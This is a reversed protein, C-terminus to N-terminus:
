FGSFPDAAKAVFHPGDFGIACNGELRQHSVGEPLEAGLLSLIQILNGSIHHKAARRVEPLETNVAFSVGAKKLMCVDNLGDGIAVFDLVPVGTRESLNRIVNSKCYHHERCGRSHKMAPSLLLEGTAVQEHHKMVHAITFDAFVRRRIIDAAFHYSDTVIGVRYGAKRLGVILDEAGEALNLSQATEHFVQLPTGAFIRGIARTRDEASLTPHDLYKSLESMKGLRRALEVVFRKEILTGDMDVLAIREPEGLKALAVAFEAQTRREVEAVEQIRTSSFREYTVARDFVARVVQSAMEGLKDLPQSDHAIRGVEVEVIRAGSAWADILLAVDAGYDTEFRLEALVDKRAAVIGGLPQDIKALEPFFVQLLPKATLTTVRGGARSFKAKVFDAKDAIIPAVLRDILDNELGTLDGDLYVVIEGEAARMGDEMSAGKGLLTSRIVKAGAASALEPTGDISGDDVVIVETVQRSRKAFNILSSITKSENLAPIVVSIM